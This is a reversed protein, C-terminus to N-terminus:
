AGWKTSPSMGTGVAIVVHPPTLYYADCFKHEKYKQVQSPMIPVGPSVLDHVAAAFITCGCTYDNNKGMCMQFDKEVYPNINGGEAISLPDCLHISKTKFKLLKIKLM